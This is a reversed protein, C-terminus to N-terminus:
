HKLGKKNNVFSKEMIDSVIPVIFYICLTIEFLYGIDNVFALVYLYVSCINFLVTDINAEKLKAVVLRHSVVFLYILASTGILGTKQLYGFFLSHTSNDYDGGIIPTKIWNNLANVMLQPRSGLSEFGGGTIANHLQSFKSALLSDGFLGSLFEFLPATFFLLIIFVVFMAIKTYIKKSRAVILLLICVSTLLLLTTYMTKIIFDYCLLVCVIWFIKHLKKQCTLMIDVLGVAVVGVMYCFSFGGVNQMRYQNLETSSTTVDEALLRAIWANEDLAMNTKNLVFITVAIFGLVIIKQQKETCFEVAYCGWLAPLFFRICRIMENIGNVYSEGNFLFLFMLLVSVVVVSVIYNIWVNRKRILLPISALMLLAVLIYPLVFKTYPLIYVALTIVAYVNFLSIMRDKKKAGLRETKKKM